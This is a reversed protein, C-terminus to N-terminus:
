DIDTTPTSKKVDDPLEEVRPEGPQRQPLEKIAAAKKTDDNTIVEGAANAKPKEYLENYLNDGGNENKKTGILYKKLVAIDNLEMLMTFSQMILSVHVNFKFSMFLSIGGSFALKKVSEQLLFIEHNQLTTETYDDAKVPAPPPGLGFPLTPQPKPPIWIKKSDKDKKNNVIM